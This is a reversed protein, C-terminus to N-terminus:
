WTKIEELLSEWERRSRTTSVLFDADRPMRELAVIAQEINGRAKEPEGLRRWCSSIQVLTELVFPDNQYLASVNSYEDVAEQYRGLDFLVSGKLMYCNRLMAKDLESGGGMRSIERQVADYHSYSKELFARYLRENKERENVAKAENFRKLPEEAANRYAEGALYHALRKKKPEIDRGICEELANIAEQYRGRDQLLTGLEFLSDRWEPSRPTLTGGTLNQRLLAEAADFEGLDRHAKAANLRAGYTAADEPHFEICEEFADVAQRSEGLALRCQGLRLLALANHRLPENKLYKEITRAASTYSQGRYYAEASEWLDVPFQETAFQREALEEFSVGAERFRRHALSLLERDTWEGANAQEQEREGWRLQTKAQLELTSDSGLITQAYELLTLAAEFDGRAVFGAHAGLLISRLESLSLLESRYVPADEVAEITRRYADLALDNSGAERLLDGEAASAAIGATSNGFRKRIDIFRDLALDTNGRVEDVKGLLFKSEGTTQTALKDLEGVSRLLQEAQDLVALQEVQNPMAMAAKLLIQGEVLNRVAPDTSAPLQDLVARAEDHRALRALALSKRLLAEIRQEDTLSRDLLLEDLHENAKGYNANEAFFHAEALLTHIDSAHALDERLSLELLSVGKDFQSSGIYAKGLLFRAEFQRDEPVGLSLAEELYRSAVLYDRRRREAAWQKEAQKGRITGLVFLPGGYDKTLITHDEQMRNVLAEALELDEKDLAELVDELTTLQHPAAISALVIWVAVTAGVLGVLVGAVLASRLKSGVTWARARAIVGGASSGEEDAADTTKEAPDAM